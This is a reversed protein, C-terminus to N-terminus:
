SVKSYKKIEFMITPIPVVEKTINPKNRCHNKIIDQFRQYYLVLQVLVRKLIETAAKNEEEATSAESGFNKLVSSNISEIGDRWYKAFHKVISELNAMDIVAAAANSNEAPNSSRNREVDDLAASTSKVFTVLKNFKESLEEEVYLTVQSQLLSAWHAADESDQASSNMAVSGAGTTSSNLLIQLIANYNNILFIVQLKPITVRQASRLLLKDVELRLRRLNTNLIDDNYGKNLKIIASAFDGYRICIQAPM